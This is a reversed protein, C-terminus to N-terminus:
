DRYRTRADEVAQEAEPRGQWGATDTHKGPELTKYIEFFNEIEQLVFQPVGSLDDVGTWRPDDVPVSLIKADPGAEDRMWFVGLPRVMIHCGPFTSEEVMVLVDLPDGDEALTDRAFGYDTPYHTATFLERDLWIEHTEHHMEYKNRSGRPIEVIAEFQM